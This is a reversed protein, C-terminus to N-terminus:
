SARALLEMAPRNVNPHRLEEASQLVRIRAEVPQAGAGPEFVARYEGTQRPTFKGTYRGKIAQDAVLEVTNAAGNGTVRVALRADTRPSGNADVAMLDIQAQEGPQA